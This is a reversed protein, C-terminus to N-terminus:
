GGAAPSCGSTVSSSGQADCGAVTPLIFGSALASLYAGSFKSLDLIGDQSVTVESIYVQTHSRDDHSDEVKPSTVWANTQMYATPM